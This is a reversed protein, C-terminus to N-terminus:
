EKAARGPVPLPEPTNTQPQAAPGGRGEYSPAAGGQNQQGEGGENQKSQPQSARAMLRLSEYSHEQLEERTLDTNATIHAVMEERRENIIQQATDLTVKQADTLAGTNQQGQGQNSEPMVNQERNSVSVYSKDMRVQEPSGQLVIQGNDDLSYDQRLLAGEEEFVVQNDFVDVTFRMRNGAANADVADRVARIRDNMSEANATFQGSFGLAQMLRMDDEHLHHCNHVLNTRPAGCGDAWNCAGEGNPLLALHDPQINRQIAEYPEGQHNGQVQQIDAFYGTSVEMAQGNELSAIMGDQVSNAKEVDLWLEGKLRDEAKQVRYMRGVVQNSVVNPDNASIPFGNVEPHQVTVPVGNWNHAHMEQALVLQNNLVGEVVAVVPVVLHERGDHNERYVEGSQHTRFAVRTREARNVIM